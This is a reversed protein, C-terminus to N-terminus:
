RVIKLHSKKSNKGTSKKIDPLEKIWVGIKEFMVEETVFEYEEDDDDEFGKDNEDWLSIDSLLRDTEMVSTTLSIAVTRALAKKPDYSKQLLREYVEGDLGIMFRKM